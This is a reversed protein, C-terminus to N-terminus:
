ANFIEKLTKGACTECIHKGKPAHVTTKVDVNLGKFTHQIQNRVVEYDDVPHHLGIRQKCYNCKLVIM